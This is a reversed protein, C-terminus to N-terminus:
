YLLLLRLEKSIASCFKLVLQDFLILHAVQNLFHMLTRASETPDIITVLPQLIGNVNGNALQLLGTLVTGHANSWINCGMTDLFGGLQMRQSTSSNQSGFNTAHANINRRNQNTFEIQNNTGNNNNTTTASLGRDNKINQNDIHQNVMPPSVELMEDSGDEANSSDGM